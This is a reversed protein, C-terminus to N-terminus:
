KETKVTINIDSLAIVKPPKWANVTREEPVLWMAHLHTYLTHPITSLPYFQIVSVLIHQL